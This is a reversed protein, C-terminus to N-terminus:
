HNYHVKVTGDNKFRIEVEKRGYDFELEHKEVRVKKPTGCPLTFCVRVPQCTKPHILWAEHTGETPVFCHAFEKHTMPRAPVYMAVMPQPVPVAPVYGRPPSPIPAYQPQQGPAPAYQPQGPQVPIPTYQPQPAPPVYRRDVPVPQLQPAPAPAVPVQYSVGVIPRPRLVERGVRVQVFPTRVQVLPRPAPEVPVAVLPGVPAQAIALSGGTLLASLAIRGLKTSNM